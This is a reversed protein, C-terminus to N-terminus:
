TSIIYKYAYQKKSSCMIIAQGDNRLCSAEMRSRVTRGTADRLSLTKLEALPRAFIRLTLKLRSYYGHFM